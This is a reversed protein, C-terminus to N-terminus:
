EDGEDHNEEDLNLGNMQEGEEDSDAEASHIEKNTMKLNEPMLQRENDGENKEEEITMLMENKTGTILKQAQSSSSQKRQDKKEEAQQIDELMPIFGSKRLLRSVRKEEIRSPQGRHGCCFQVLHGKGTVTFDDKLTEDKDQQIKLLLRFQEQQFKLFKTFQNHYTPLQGKIM